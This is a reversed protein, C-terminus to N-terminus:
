RRATREFPYRTSDQPLDATTFYRAFIFYHMSSRLFLLYPSSDGVTVENLKRFDVALRLKQKGSADEEKKVSIIPSNWPSTSHRIIKDELMQGTIQKLEGKLAEPIRYNRSAIGRCPDISPNPIV